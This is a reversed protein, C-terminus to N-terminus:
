PICVIFRPFFFGHYLSRRFPQCHLVVSCIHTRTNPMNQCFYSHFSCITTNLCSQYVPIQDNISFFMFYLYFFVYCASFIYHFRCIENPIQITFLFFFGQQPPMVICRVEKVQPNDSPSYGYLFGSIQIRLDSICIFKKLLNKPLVYTYATENIDDTSVFIHNTRLHLHTASIARVCLFFFSFFM